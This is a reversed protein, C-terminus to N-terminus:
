SSATCVRLCSSSCRVKCSSAAISRASFKCVMRSRTVRGSSADVDDAVAEEAGEKGDSEGAREVGFAVHRSM